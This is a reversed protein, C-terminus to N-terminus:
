LGPSRQVGQDLITILSRLLKLNMRDLKGSNDKPTELIMPVRSSFGDNLLLRFGTTGIAGLGIHAHKDRCSGLAYHSDNLHIVAPKEMGLTTQFATKTRHWSEADRMDYGGAFAHCTDFCVGLREPFRCHGIIDRLQAFTTGILKRSGAMIELAIHVANDAARDFLESLFAATNRIGASEGAGRHAGPHLVMWSIGLKRCFEYESVMAQMSRQRIVRDSTAPNVLYLAHLIVPDIGTLAKKKEFSDIHQRTLQPRRWVRPSGSFLSVTDCELQAAQVLANHVGGAISLHSGLIRDIGPIM